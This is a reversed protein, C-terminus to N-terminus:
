FAKILDVLKKVAEKTNNFGLSIRCVTPLSKELFYSDACLVGSRTSIGERALYDSFNDAFELDHRDRYVSFVSTTLNPDQRALSFGKEILVAEIAGSFGKILRQYHSRVDTKLFVELVAGLAAISGINQLGAEWKKTVDPSFVFYDKTVTEVVGGGVFLPEYFRLIRKDAIAVGLHTSYFKHASFIYISNPIFEKHQFVGQAIDFINIVEGDFLQLPIAQGDVNSYLTRVNLWGQGHVNLCNKEQLFTSNHGLLASDTIIKKNYKYVFTNVFLNILFTSNYGFIVEWDTNLGFFDRVLKRTNEVKEKAEEAIKYSGRSACTNTYKLFAEIAEVLPFTQCANDFYLPSCNHIKYM